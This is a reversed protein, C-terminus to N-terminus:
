MRLLLEQALRMWAGDIWLASAIALAALAAWWRNTSIPTSVVDLDLVRDWHTRGTQVLAAFGMGMAILSFPLILLAQGMLAVRGARQLATAIGPSAGNRRVVRLGLLMRGPTHGFVGVLLAELPLAAIVMLMPVFFEFDQLEAQPSGLQYLGARWGFASLLGWGIGGLLMLDISRALLRRLALAARERKEALGASKGAALLAEAVAAPSPKGPSRRWDDAPIPATGPIPAGRAKAIPKPTTGPKGAAAARSSAKAPAKPPAAAAPEAARVGLARRLPVWEAERLTWVLHDDGIRGADRLGQLESRTLPGQANGDRDAVYWGDGSEIM